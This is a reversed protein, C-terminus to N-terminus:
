LFPIFISYSLVYKIPVYPEISGSGEIKNQAAEKLVDLRRGGIYVKAGNQAFGMAIM